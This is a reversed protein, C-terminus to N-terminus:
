GDSGTPKSLYEFIINLRDQSCNLAPDLTCCHTLKHRVYYFSTFRHLLTHAHLSAIIHPAIHTVIQIDGMEVALGTAYLGSNLDDVFTALESGVVSTYDNRSAMSLQTATDNYNANDHYYTSGRGEHYAVLHAFDFRSSRNSSM